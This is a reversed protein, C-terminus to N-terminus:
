LLKWTSLSYHAKRSKNQLGAATSKRCDKRYQEDSRKRWDCARVISGKIQDPGLDLHAHLTRSRGQWNGFHGVQLRSVAEPDM